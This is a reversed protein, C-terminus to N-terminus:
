LQLICIHLWTKRTRSTELDRMVVCWLRWSEEPRTILEVCLSRGWRVVCKCYRSKCCVVYCFFMWLKLLIRVWLRLLRIAKPIPTDWVEVPIYQWVNSRLHSTIASLAITSDCYCSCFSSGLSIGTGCGRPGDCTVSLRPDFGLRKQSTDAVLRRDMSTLVPFNQHQYCGM